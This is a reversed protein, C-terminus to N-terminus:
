DTTVHPIINKKARKYVLQFFPYQHINVKYTPGPEVKRPGSTFLLLSSTYISEGQAIVKFHEKEM